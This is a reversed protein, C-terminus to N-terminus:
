LTLGDVFVGLSTSGSVPAFHTPAASLLQARTACQAGQNSLRGMEYAIPFVRLDATFPAGNFTGPIDHMASLIDAPSPESFVADVTGASYTSGAVKIILNALSPATWDGAFGFAVFTPNATLVSALTNQAPDSPTAGYGITTAKAGFTASALKAVATPVRSPTSDRPVVLVIRAGRDLTGAAVVAMTAESRKTDNTWASSLPNGNEDIVKISSGLVLPAAGIKLREANIDSVMQAIQSQAVGYQIVGLVDTSFGTLGTEGYHQVQDSPSHDGTLAQEASGESTDLACGGMISVICMYKLIRM